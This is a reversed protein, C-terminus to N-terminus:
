RDYQQLNFTKIMSNLKINYKSDTAFTGTLTKTAEKYSKTHAIQTKKYYEKNWSTGNVLLKAYDTMSAKYSPYKRFNANITSMNGNGDDEQTPFQVSNGLYKGKIGFLNNNPSSALDSNGSDSELTAQAIMVSAYLGYRSAIEEATPAIKEIFEKQSLRTPQQQIDQPEEVTEAFQKLLLLGCFLVLVLGIVVVIFFQTLKRM